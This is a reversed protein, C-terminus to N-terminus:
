DQAEAWFVCRDQAYLVQSLITGELAQQTTLDGSSRHGPVCSGKYGPAFQLPLNQPHDDGCGQQDQQARNPVLGRAAKPWSHGRAPSAVHGLIAPGRGGSCTWVENPNGSNKGLIRKQGWRMWSVM